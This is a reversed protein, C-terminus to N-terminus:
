YELQDAPLIVNEQENYLGSFTVVITWGSVNTFVTFSMPDTAPDPDTPLYYAPFRAPPYVAQSLDFVVQDHSITLSAAGPITAGVSVQASATSAAVVLALSALARRVTRTAPRDLAPWNMAGGRASRRAPGHRRRLRPRGAAHVLGDAATGVPPVRRRADRRPLLGRGRRQGERRSRRDRRAGRRIGHHAAARHRHQQVAGAGRATRRGGARVQPRRHQRRADARRRGRLHLTRR